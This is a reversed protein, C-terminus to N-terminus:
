SGFCPSFRDMMRQFSPINKSKRSKVRNYITLRHILFFNGNKSFFNRENIFWKIELYIYTYTVNQM